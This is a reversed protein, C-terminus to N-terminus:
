LAMISRFLRDISALIYARRTRLSNLVKAFFNVTAVRTIYLEELSSLVKALVFDFIQNNLGLLNALSTM